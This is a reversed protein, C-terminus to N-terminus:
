SGAPSEGGGFVEWAQDLVKAGLPVGLRDAVSKNVWYGIHPIAIPHHGLHPILGSQRGHILQAGTAGISRDDGSVAAFAFGHRCNNRTTAIVKRSKLLEALKMLAPDQSEFLSEITYWSFYVLGEDALAAAFTDPTVKEILLRESAFLRTKALQAAAERDQPHVDFYVFKLTCGPLLWNCILAATSRLGDAAYAVGAVECEEYRSYLSDVLHSAVPYTVGLFVVRPSKGERGFDAGYHARLALSAQTGVTVVYDAKDGDRALFQDIAARWAPALRGGRGLPADTPGAINIEDPGLDYGIAQLQERMAERIDRTYQLDGSRL